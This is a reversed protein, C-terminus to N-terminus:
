VSVAGGDPMGVQEAVTHKQRLEQVAEEMLILAKASRQRDGKAAAKELEDLHEEINEVTSRSRTDSLSIAHMDSLGMKAEKILKTMQSPNPNEIQTKFSQVYAELNQVFKTTDM